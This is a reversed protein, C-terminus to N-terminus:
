SNIDQLATVGEVSTGPLLARTWKVESRNKLRIVEEGEARSYYLSLLYDLGAENEHTIEYLIRTGEPSKRIEMIYNRTLGTHPNGFVLRYPTIEMTVGKYRPDASEWIGVIEDPAEEISSCRYGMVGLIAMIIVLSSLGGWIWRRSLKHQLGGGQPSKHRLGTRQHPKHQLGRRKQGPDLRKM